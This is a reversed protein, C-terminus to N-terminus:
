ERSSGSLQAIDADLEALSSRFLRSPGKAQQRLSLVLVAAGIFFLAAFLGFVLVRQEWFALALSFVAMIVGLAILFAAGIAKAWMAILRYKEEEIEVALLEARTRGISLLTALINKLAAFLGPRGADEPPLQGSM